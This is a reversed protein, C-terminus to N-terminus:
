FGPIQMETYNSPPAFAEDPPSGEEFETARYSAGGGEM